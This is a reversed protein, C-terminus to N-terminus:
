EDGAAGAKRETMREDTQKSGAEDWQGEVFMM